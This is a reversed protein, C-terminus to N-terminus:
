YTDTWSTWSDLKDLKRMAKEKCVSAKLSTIKKKVSLFSILSFDVGYTPLLYYEYYSQTSTLFVYNKFYFCTTKHGYVHLNSMRYGNNVYTYLYAQNNIKKTHKSQINM